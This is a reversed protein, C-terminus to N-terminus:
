AKLRRDGRLEGAGVAFATLTLWQGDTGHDKGFSKEFLVTGGGVVGGALGAGSGVFAGSGGYLSYRTVTDGEVPWTSGYITDLLGAADPDFVRLYFTEGVEGPGAPVSFYITQTFDHDGEIPAGQKGYNILLPPGDHQPQAARGAPSAILFALSFVALGWSMFNVVPTM